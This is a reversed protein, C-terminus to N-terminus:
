GEFQPVFSLVVAQKPGLPVDNLPLKGKSDALTGSILNKSRIEVKGTDPLYKSKGTFDLVTSNAGLNAAVLFAPSGKRVRIMSFTENSVIPYEQIGFGLAPEKRKELLTKFINLHSQM